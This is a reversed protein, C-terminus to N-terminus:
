ESEKFMMSLAHATEEITSEPFVACREFDVKDIRWIGLCVSPEEITSNKPKSAVFAVDITLSRMHPRVLSFLKRYSRDSIFDIDVEVVMQSTKNTFPDISMNVDTWVAPHKDTHVSLEMPKPKILRIALPGDVLCPIVKLRANRYENNGMLFRKLAKVDAPDDVKEEPCDVWDPLAFYATINGFPLMLNAIFTPQDRLGSETLMPQKWIEGPPDDSLFLDMGRLKCLPDVIFSPLILDNEELVTARTDNLELNGIPKHEIMYPERDDSDSDHDGEEQIGEEFHNDFPFYPERIEGDNNSQSGEVSGRLSFKMSRFKNKLRRMSIQRRSYDPSSKLLHQMLQSRSSLPASLAEEWKRAEYENKPAYSLISRRSTSDKSVTLPRELHISNKKEKYIDMDKIKMQSKSQDINKHEVIEGIVSLRKDLKYGLYFATGVLISVVSFPLQNARISERKTWIHSAAIVFMISEFGLIYVNSSNRKVNNSTTSHSEASSIRETDPHPTEANQLVESEYENIEEYWPPVKPVQQENDHAVDLEHLTKLLRLTAEFTDAYSRRLSDMIPPGPSSSEELTENKGTAAPKITPISDGVKLKGRHLLNKEFKDVKELVRLIKMMGKSRNASNAIVTEGDDRSLKKVADDKTEM